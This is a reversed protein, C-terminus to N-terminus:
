LKLVKNGFNSRKSRVYYIGKSFASMDFDYKENPNIDFKSEIHGLSNIILINEKERSHNIIQIKDTTVTPIIQLTSQSNFDPARSVTQGSYLGENSVTNIAADYIIMYDTQYKIRIWGYLTDNNVTKRFPHYKEITITDLDWGCSGNPGSRSFYAVTNNTPYYFSSDIWSGSNLPVRGCLGQSNPNTYNAAFSIVSPNIIIKNEPCWYYQNQWSGCIYTSMHVTFDPTADQDIDLSITDLNGLPQNTLYIDPNFDTYIIQGQSFHISALLLLLLLTKLKM